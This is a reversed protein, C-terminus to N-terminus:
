VKTPFWVVTYDGAWNCGVVGVEATVRISRCDIGVLEDIIVQRGDGTCKIEPLM